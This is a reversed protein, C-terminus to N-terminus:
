SKQRLVILAGILILIGPLIYDRLYEINPFFSRVLMYLAIIFFILGVFLNSIKKRSFMYCELFGIGIGLPYGFSLYDDYEGNTLNRILFQIGFVVMIVPFFYNNPNGNNSFTRFHMLIGPIILFLPWLFNWTSIDIGISKQILLLIGLAIFIFGM